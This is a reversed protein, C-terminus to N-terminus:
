WEDCTMGGAYTRSCTVSRHAPVQQANQLQMALLKISVERICTRQEATGDRLGNDRCQVLAYARADDASILGLEVNSKAPARTTACGALGVTLICTTALLALKM